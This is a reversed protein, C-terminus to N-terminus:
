TAQQQNLAAAAAANRVVTAARAKELLAPFTQLAPLVNELFDLVKDAEELYPELSPELTAITKNAILTKIDPHFKADVSQFLQFLAAVADSNM